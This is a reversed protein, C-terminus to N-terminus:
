RFPCEESAWDFSGIDNSLIFIDCIIINRIKAHIDLIRALSNVVLLINVHVRCMCSDFIHLKVLTGVALKPQRFNALIILGQSQHLRTSERKQSQTV